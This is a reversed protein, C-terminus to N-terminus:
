RRKTGEKKEHISKGQEKKREKKREKKSEKKREKYVKVTEKKRKGKKLFEM